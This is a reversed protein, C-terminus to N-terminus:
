DDIKEVERIRTVELIYMKGDIKMLLNNPPIYTFMYNRKEMKQFANSMLALYNRRQYEDYKIGMFLTYGIWLAVVITVYQEISKIFDGTSFVYAIEAISTIAIVMLLLTVYKTKLAYDIFEENM